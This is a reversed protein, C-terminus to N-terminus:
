RVAKSPEHVALTAGLVKVIFASQVNPRSPRSEADNETISKAIQLPDELRENAQRADTEKGKERVLFATWIRADVAM